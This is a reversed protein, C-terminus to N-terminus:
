TIGGLFLNSGEVMTKPDKEYTHDLLYLWMDGYMLESPYESHIEPKMVQYEGDTFYDYWDMLWEEVEQTENIKVM